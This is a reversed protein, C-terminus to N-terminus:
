HNIKAAATRVARHRYIRGCVIFFVIGYVTALPAALGIHALTAGEMRAFLWSLPFRVLFSSTIGQIMVCMTKGCGNFYGCYSFLVCTLLCDASFGRLYDASQAIVAPDNAFLASLLGGGFFGACFLALGGVSGAAMGAFMSKRAREPQGAGINQAAFTSVGAMVASPVLFIFATVRNAVGYGASEQLGIGNVIANILLFSLNVLTDQFAIPAGIKLTQRLEHRDTRRLSAWTLTFPLKKRRIIVLSLVVSVAQAAVTAWAAGAADMRFIGVLVLDGVINVACAIAVFLMPLRSNGLGRFIGSIVNYATIFVIGFSCIRVYEVTKEFADDPAKMLRALAPAFVTMLVTLVAAAAAFLHAATGVTRGAADPRQEGIHQGIVVTAGMALGNVISLVITMVSSGTGVASIGTANGFQGVVMLDVAGYAAQLLLAALVPLSFKLLAPLIRGRTFDATNKEM